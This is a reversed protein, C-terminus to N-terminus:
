VLTVNIPYQTGGINATGTLVASQIGQVGSNIQSLLTSALGLINAAINFTLDTEANAAIPQATFDSVNAVTAGNVSLSGAFSNYQLATNSTNQVGLVVQFSGGSVTIGRPLFQLNSITGYRTYAWYGFVAVLALIVITNSKM